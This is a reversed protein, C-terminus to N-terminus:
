RRELVVVLEEGVPAIRNAVSLAAFSALAAGHRVLKGLPRHWVDRRLSEHFIGLFMAQSTSLRVLSLGGLEPVRLYAKFGAATFVHLHRPTEWGRWSRGFVRSLASSANPTRVILRGGPRLLGALWALDQAPDAVHEIVHNLTITAFPGHAALDERREAIEAGSARAALRAQPDFDYGTLRSFGAERLEGLFSGDGCGYDLVPDEKLGSAVAAFERMALRRASRALLSRRQASDEGHTSYSGYLSGISDEEPIPSVFVVGCSSCRHYDLQVQLGYEYDPRGQLFTDASAQCFPCAPNLM